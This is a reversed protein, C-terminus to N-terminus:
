QGITGATTPLCYANSVMTGTDDVMLKEITSRKVKFFSDDIEIESVTSPSWIRTNTGQCLFIEKLGFVPDERNFFIDGDM